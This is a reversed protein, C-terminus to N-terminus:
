IIGGRNIETLSRTFIFLVLGTLLLVFVWSYQFINANVEINNEASDLAAGVDSYVASRVDTDQISAISENADLLIQEGAAYLKVNVLVGMPALVAAILIIVLATIIFVLYLSVNGKKGKIKNM